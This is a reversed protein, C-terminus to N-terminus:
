KITQTIFWTSGRLHKIQKHHEGGMYVKFSYYIGYTLYDPQRLVKSHRLGM